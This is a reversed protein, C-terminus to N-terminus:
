RETTEGPPSRARSSFADPTVPAAQMRAFLLEIDRTQDTDGTDHQPEGYMSQEDFRAGREHCPEGYLRKEDATGSADDTSPYELTM